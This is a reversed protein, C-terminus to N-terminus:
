QTPNLGIAEASQALAAHEKRHCNSCLVICKQIEHLVRSWSWGLAITAAQSINAGKDGNVHHFEICAPHSEGCRECSLTAKYARYQDRVKAATKARSARMSAHGAKSRRWIQHYDRQHARRREPDKYPMAPNVVNLKMYYVGRIPTGLPSRVRM